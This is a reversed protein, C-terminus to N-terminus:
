VNKFIARKFDNRQADTRRNEIEGGNLCRTVELMRATKTFNFGNCVSNGLNHAYSDWIQNIHNEIAVDKLLSMQDFEPSFDPVELGLIL